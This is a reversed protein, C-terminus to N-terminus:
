VCYQLRIARNCVTGCDVFVGRYLRITAHNCATRCDSQVIARLGAIRNSRAQWSLTFALGRSSSSGWRVGGLGAVNSKKKPRFFNGSPRLINLGCNEMSFSKRRFHKLRFPKRTFYPVQPPGKSKPKLLTWPCTAASTCTWRNRLWKPELDQSM